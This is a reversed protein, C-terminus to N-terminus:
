RERRHRDPRRQRLTQAPRRRHAHQLPDIVQHNLRAPLLRALIRIRPLHRRRQPRQIPRLHRQQPPAPHLRQRQKFLHRRQLPVRLSRRVPRHIWLITEPFPQPLDRPQHLRPQPHPHRANIQGAPVRVKELAPRRPLLRLADLHQRLPQRRQLLVQEPLCAAVRHHHRRLEPPPDILIRAQARVM